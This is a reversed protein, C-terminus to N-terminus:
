SVQLTQPLVVTSQQIITGQGIRHDLRNVRHWAKAILGTNLYIVYKWLYVRPSQIGLLSPIVLSADMMYVNGKAQEYCWSFADLKPKDHTSVLADVAYVGTMKLITTNRDDPHELWENVIFSMYRM